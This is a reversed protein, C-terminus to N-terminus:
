RSDLRSTRDLIISDKAGEDQMRNGNRQASNQHFHLGSTSIVRFRTYAYKEIPANVHM